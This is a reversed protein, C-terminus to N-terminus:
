GNIWSNILKAEKFYAHYIYYADALVRDCNSISSINSVVRVIQSDFREFKVTVRVRFVRFKLISL